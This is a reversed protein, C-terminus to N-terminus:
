DVSGVGVGLCKSMDNIYGLSKMSDFKNYYGKVKIIPLIQSINSYLRCNTTRSKLYYVNNPSSVALPLFAQSAPSNGSTSRIQFVYHINIHYGNIFKLSHLTNINYTIYDFNHKSISCFYDINSRTLISIIPFSFMWSININLPYSYIAVM